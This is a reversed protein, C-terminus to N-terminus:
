RSVFLGEENRAQPLRHPIPPENEHLLLHFLLVNIRVANRENVSVLVHNHLDVLRAGHAFGNFRDAGIALSERHRSCVHHAGSPIRLM